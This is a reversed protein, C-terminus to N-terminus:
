HNWVCFPLASIMSKNMIIERAKLFCNEDKIYKKLSFCLQGYFTLSANEYCDLIVRSNNFLLRSHLLKETFFSTKSSLEFYMKCTASAEILDNPSLYSLIISWVEAPLNEM